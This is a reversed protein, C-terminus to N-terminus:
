KKVEFFTENIHIQWSTPIWPIFIGFLRKRFFWGFRLCYKIRNYLNYLNMYQIVPSTAFVIRNYHNIKLRM